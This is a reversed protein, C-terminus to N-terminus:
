MMRFRNGHTETGVIFPDWLNTLGFIAPPNRDHWPALTIEFIGM